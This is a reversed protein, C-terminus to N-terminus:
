DGDSVAERIRQIATEGGHKRVTAAFASDDLTLRHAKVLALVDSWDRATDDRGPQHIAHLKRAIMAVVSPTAIPKTDTKSQELLHFVEDDVLMLDVPSLPLEGPPEYQHFNASEAFLRYNVGAM